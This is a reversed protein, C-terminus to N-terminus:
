ITAEPNNRDVVYVKPDSWCVVGFKDQSLKVIGRVENGLLYRENSVVIKFERTATPVESMNSEEESDRVSLVKSL